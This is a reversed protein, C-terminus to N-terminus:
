KMMSCDSCYLFIAARDILLDLNVDHHLTARQYIRARGNYSILIEQSLQSLGDKIHIIDNQIEQFRPSWRVTDLM